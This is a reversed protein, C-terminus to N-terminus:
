AEAGEKALELKRLRSPILGQPRFIMMLAMAGGFVLLRYLQFQRLAEPLIILAVAGLIVGPISGMGGLVVMCLVMVSEMFTFSEPSIFTMKGAFFVGALGAFAAGAAFALLKLATVNVGMARAAVEDERIAVWARGIRSREIRRVIFITLLVMTLILYYYHMPQRFTFGFLRPRQIGLIGNPGRTVEDWNNLVIRTIEGFGLTVIALYDGRLRLVPSGLLLGFLAAVVAGIPLGLWFPLQFHVWLLAYTYAGVAYFAIYGLALLGTLGVVINLGLALMIYIGALVAVDVFYKNLVQPLVLLLVGFAILTGTQLPKGGKGVSESAKRSLESLGKRIAEWLPNLLILILVAGCLGLALKWGGFPFVLLGLWPAWLLRKLSKM